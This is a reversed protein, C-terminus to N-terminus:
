KGKLARVAPKFVKAVYSKTPLGSDGETTQWTRGVRFPEHKAGAKDLIPELVKAAKTTLKDFGIGYSRTEWGLSPSWTVMVSGSGTGGVKYKAYVVVYQYDDEDDIEVVYRDPTLGTLKKALKGAEKKAVAATPVSKKPNGVYERQWGRGGKHWYMWPKFRGATTKRKELFLESGPRGRGTETEIVDLCGDLNGCYVEFCQQRPHRVHVRYRTQITM